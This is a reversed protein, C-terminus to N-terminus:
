FNLRCKGYLDLAESFARADAPREGYWSAEAMSILRALPPRAEEPVRAAFDRWTDADTVPVRGAGRAAAMLAAMLGHLAAAFDGAAACGRARDEIVSPNEGSAAREAVSRERRAAAARKLRVLRVIMFALMALIGALAVWFVAPANRLAHDLAALFSKFPDSPRPARAFKAQALVDAAARRIEDATLAAATIADLAIM